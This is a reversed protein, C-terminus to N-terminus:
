RSEFQEGPLQKDLKLFLIREFSEFTYNQARHPNGLTGDGRGFLRREVRLDARFEALALLRSAASRAGELYYLSCKFHKSIHRVGREGQDGKRKPAAVNMGMGTGLVAQIVNASFFHTCYSAQLVRKPLPTPVFM